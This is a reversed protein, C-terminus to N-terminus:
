QNWEGRGLGRQHSKSHAEESGWLTSPLTKKEGGIGERLPDLFESKLQSPDSSVIQKKGQDEERIAWLLRQIMWGDM